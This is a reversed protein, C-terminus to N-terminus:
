HFWRNQEALRIAELRSHVRLKGYINEVHKRVTSASIFLRDAIQGPTYGEVVLELIEIERNTLAFADPLPLMQLSKEVSKDILTQQRLLTLTKLAIGPSMPAGGAVVDEIAQVIRAPREDKLLYGSAGAKIAEFLKDDRDFITLMLVNISPWQQKIRATATIGDLVPMEIDMLIVQPQHKDIQRIAQEGDMATCVVEVESFLALNQLLTRLLGPNDDVVAIRIPMLDSM